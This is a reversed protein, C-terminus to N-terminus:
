SMRNGVKIFRRFSSEEASQAESHRFSNRVFTRFFPVSYFLLRNSCFSCRNQSNFVISRQYNETLYNLSLKVMLAIYM